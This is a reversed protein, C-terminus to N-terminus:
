CERQIEKSTTVVRGWHFEQDQSGRTDNRCKPNHEHDDSREYPALRKRRPYKTPIIGFSTLVVEMKTFWDFYEACMSHLVDNTEILISMFLHSWDWRSRGRCSQDSSRELEPLTRSRDIRTWHHGPHRIGSPHLVRFTHRLTWVTRFATLPHLVKALHKQSNIRKEPIHIMLIWLSSKEFLFSYISPGPCILSTWERFIWYSGSVPIWLHSQKFAACVDQFKCGCCLVRVSLMFKSRLRTDEFQVSRSGRAVVVDTQTDRSLLTRHSFFMFDCDKGAFWRGCDLLMENFSIQDEHRHLLLETENIESVNSVSTVSTDNVADQNKM